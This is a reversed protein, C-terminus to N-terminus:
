QITFTQIAHNYTDVHFLGISDADCFRAFSRYAPTHFDYARDGSIFFTHYSNYLLGRDYFYVAMGRLAGAFAEGQYVVMFGSTAHEAIYQGAYQDATLGNAPGITLDAVGFRVQSGETKVSCDYYMLGSDFLAPYEFSVGLGTYTSWKGEYPTYDPTPEPTPLPPLPPEPTATVPTLYLDPTPAPPNNPDTPSPLLGTAIWTAEMAATATWDPTWWPTPIEPYPTPSLASDPTTVLATQTAAVWTGALSATATLNEPPEVGPEPALTYTPPLPTDNLSQLPPSMPACATLLALTATTWVRANRM